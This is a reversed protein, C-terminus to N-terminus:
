QILTMESILNSAGGLKDIIFLVYRIDVSINRCISSDYMVDSMTGEWNRDFNIGILNGNADLVPSGSNGGSTHNSAIFCVPMTGNVGYRGYDRTNYLQHLKEPVKYDAILPDEKQMVGDLTTNYDYSIADRAQYGEVKGYAVRMTFNADPYFIKDKQMEMIAKVYLRYRDNAKSNLELYDPQIKNVYISLFSKYLAFFPDKDLKKKLKPIPLDSLELVKKKSTFSSKSYIYDVYQKVNGNYKGTLKAFADPYFSHNVNKQYMELMSEITRRDLAVRYSNYFGAIYKKLTELNNEGAKSNSGTIDSTYSMFHTLMPWLDLTAIGEEYYAVPVVYSELLTYCSDMTKLVPGYKSKRAPDATVWRQFESEFDLKKQLANTRKLGIVSGEWNKWANSIGYFRSTYALRLTDNQHMADAMIDLIRGRVAIRAPLEMEIRNKIAHATLFQQTRGPYGMVMTFDGEKVGKLSISLYKKPKYPVNDKSYEKPENDKGAYIRFISFDGTHRPWMWNDTDGGFNGVSVPPAAVLRVDPYILYVFLCYQNGYFLPRVTARYFNGTVANREILGSNEKIKSDMQEKTMNENVGNLVADTVEEMRVLLTVSLGKGPLEEDRSKAWFGNAYLDNDLKSYALVQSRGCHHNTLLLGEPSVIEGTCGGGFIVVADKLCAKNISYIDEASLKLGKAQMASINLKDLLALLWMGENAKLGISNSFLLSCILFFQIKIKM